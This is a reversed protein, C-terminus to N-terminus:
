TKDWIVKEGLVTEIALKDAETPEIRGFIIGELRTPSIIVSASLAAFTIHKNRLTNRLDYYAIHKFNKTRGKTLAKQVAQRSVGMQRAIEAYSMGRRHLEAAKTRNIKSM